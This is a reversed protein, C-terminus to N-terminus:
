LLLRLHRALALFNVSRINKLKALSSSHCAQSSCLLSRPFIVLEAFCSHAPECPFPYVPNGTSVWKRAIWLASPAASALILVPILVFQKRKTVLAVAFLLVLLAYPLFTQKTGISVGACLASLVFTQIRGTDQFSFLLAVAAFLFATGFADVYFAFTQFLIIPVSLVIICSLAGGERSASL